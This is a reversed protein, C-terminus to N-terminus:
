QIPKIKEMLYFCFKTFQRFRKDKRLSIAIEDLQMYSLFNVETKLYRCIDIAIGVKFGCFFEEKTTIHYKSCEQNALQKRIESDLYHSYMKDYILTHTIKEKCYEAKLEITDKALWIKCISTVM